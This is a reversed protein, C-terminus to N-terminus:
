IGNAIARAVPKAIPLPPGDLQLSAGLVDAIIASLERPRIPLVLFREAGLELALRRHPETAWGTLVIVPLHLGASSARVARIVCEDDPSRLYLDTVIVDYHAVAVQSLVAPVDTATDVTYGDFALVSGYIKRCDANAHALLVRERAM